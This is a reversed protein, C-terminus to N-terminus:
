DPIDDRVPQPKLRQVYQGTANTLNECLKDQTASSAGVIAMNCFGTAIDYLRAVMHERTGCSRADAGRPCAADIDNLMVEMVRDQDNTRLIEQARVLVNTCILYTFGVACLMAVYWGLRRESHGCFREHKPFLM